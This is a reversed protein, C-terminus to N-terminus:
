ECYVRVTDGDGSTVDITLERLAELLEDGKLESLQSLDIGKESLKESAHPPLMTSLKLGTRVLALPVRINVHDNNTSNVVVRLYKPTGPRPKETVNGTATTDDRESAQGLKDLLREADDPTIKGEALMEIIKRREQSM